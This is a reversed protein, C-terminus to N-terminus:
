SCPKQQKKPSKKNIKPYKKKQRKEPKAPRTSAPSNITINQQIFTSQAPPNRLLTLIAIIVAVFAYLESRTKPLLDILSAFEPLERKITSAIEEGSANSRKLQEITAALKEYEVRVRRSRGPQRMARLSGNMIRYVTSGSVKLEKAVQQVTRERGDALGFRLQLVLRQRPTLTEELLADTYNKLAAYFAKDQLM